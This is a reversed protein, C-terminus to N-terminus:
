RQMPGPRTQPARLLVDITQKGGGDVLVPYAQTTTFWLQGDVTVRARVVVRASAPLQARPASLSYRYPPLEDAPYIRSTALVTAPADARSVDELTAEFMANPPLVIRERYIATGVVTIRSPDGDGGGLVKPVMSCGVFAATVAVTALARLLTYKM